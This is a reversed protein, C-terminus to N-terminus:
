PGTLMSPSLRTRRCRALVLEVLVRATAMAAANRRTPAASVEMFDAGVVDLTRGAAEVIPLVQELSLGGPVPAGTEPALQPDLVDVDFSLYYPLSRPLGRLVRAPTLGRVERATVWSLRPDPRVRQGASLSELARVGIQRLAKVEPHALVDCFVNAHNLWSVTGNLDLHADFHLVGVAGHKAVVSALAFATLAHDGGLMIPVCSAALVADVVHRLRAGLADLGEQPLGQLDGLDLVRVGATAIRRRANVDLLTPELLGDPDTAIPMADRIAGPGGRAGGECTIGREFPAGFVAFTADRGRPLSELSLDFLNVKAGFPKPAGELLGGRLLDLAAPDVLIAQRRLDDLVGPDVQFTAFFEDLSAPERFFELIELVDLSAEVHSGHASNSM